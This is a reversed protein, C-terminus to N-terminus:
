VSRPLSRAHSCRTRLTTCRVSNPFRPSSLQLVCTTGEPGLVLAEVETTTLMLTPIGSIAVVDDDVM